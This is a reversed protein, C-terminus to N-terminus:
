WYENAFSAATHILKLVRIDIIIYESEFEPKNSFATIENVQGNVYYYRHTPEGMAARKKGNLSSYFIQTELNM